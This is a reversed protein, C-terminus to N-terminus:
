ARRTRPEDGAEDPTAEARRAPRSRKGHLPAPRVRTFRESHNELLAQQSGLPQRRGPQAREYTGDPQLLWAQKNDLLPLELAEGLVRSRLTDDLIPFCLEVRRFFNREMWDASSCYVEEAGDAFFYYARTHELFRGVISRVRIRDSVGAVGPRLCCIGRVLLDIEVGAQSAEYLAQILGPDSLANVRAIIRAKRGARAADVERAIRELLASRLTFPSRHLCKLRAVQGLGTLEQFLKHVDTGIEPRATLLGLDTYARATGPHYNGTGLHVYRRLRRGERRVILLAKAHAKYGVIGYAVNAGAEQLRTALDINAAEDFRARLEVVVTVEKGARAADLLATVIPSGVDTRYLTQKIALVSPDEAAQQLLQVVPAFSEYPHHLLVDQDRIVEFLDQGHVLRPQTGPVFSPFKLEPRDVLDYIAALRSVNVPGNVRYLEDASLGVNRLLFQAMEPSCTDAVELRVAEGFKRNPLEGKLAQLLNDIEEEDVWLDSNRTLRFQFCGRMEMGPFLESAHEHIVSSLMVFAHEGAGDAGRERPLAILRPLSRPVQVVAIGSQRQFADRGEVTVAVCLGKNLVRPFPHAPDIGMPTLVPLVETMFYRKIWRADEATWSGRRMLHIGQAALAPLLEENLIRYQEHVLEHATVSVRRLTEHPSLGDPQFQQIGYSVQEKLGAVRIEFFEDLNRSCITLFRLRELLPVEPDQSQALVRRNFELLSLERNLFLGPDALSTKKLTM